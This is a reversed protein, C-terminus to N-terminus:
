IMNVSSLRPLLLRPQLEFVDGESVQTNFLAFVLYFSHVVQFAQRVYVAVADANVAPTEASVHSGCEHQAIRLNEFYAHGASRDDVPFIILYHIALAIHVGRLCVGFTIFLAVQLVECSLQFSMQENDVIVVIVGAYGLMRKREHLCAHICAGIGIQKDIGSMLVVNQSAVAYM